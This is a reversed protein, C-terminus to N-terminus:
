VNTLVEVRPGPFSASGGLSRMDALMAEPGAAVILAGHPVIRADLAAALVQQVRGRTHRAKPVTAPEHDLEAQSLCLVVSVGREAWGRVEDAIPLDKARRVGIFVHTADASGEALRRAVVPRAVGLASAVVAVVVHRGAMKVIPFGEGLPGTISLATGLPLTALAEAAGPAVKVLLKWPAVGVDSALVFYGDGLDTKVEIYQGPTSYARAADRDAELSVLLLGGGAEVRAALIASAM